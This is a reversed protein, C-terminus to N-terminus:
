CRAAEKAAKHETNAPRLAVPLPTHRERDAWAALAAEKGRELAMSARAFPFLEGPFEREFAQAEALMESRLHMMLFHLNVPIM